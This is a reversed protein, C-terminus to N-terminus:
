AAADRGGREGPYDARVWVGSGREGGLEAAHIGADAAFADDRWGAAGAAGPERQHECCDAAEASECEAASADAVAAVGGGGRVGVGVLAAATASARDGAREDTREISLDGAARLRDIREGIGMGQERGKGCWTSRGSDVADGDFIHTVIHFMFGIRDGISTKNEQDAPTEFSWYVFLPRGLINQQPVFGWIGGTWAKRGTTGWRLCTDRRCWWIM